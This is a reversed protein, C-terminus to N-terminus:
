HTWLPFAEDMLLIEPDNALARALGWTAANRRFLQGVMQNQYGKLGVIEMSKMAKKVNRNPFEKLELGFAINSLVSRHPLLGFNQFVM